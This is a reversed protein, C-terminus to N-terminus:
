RNGLMCSVTSSGLARDIRHVPVLSGAPREHQWWYRKDSLGSCYLLLLMLYSACNSNRKDMGDDLQWGSLVTIISCNYHVSIYYGAPGESHV